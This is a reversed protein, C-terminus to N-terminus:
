KASAKKRRLPAFQWTNDEARCLRYNGSGKRGGAETVTRLTRCTTGYDEHTDLVTITGGADTDPNRWEVVGGDPTTDLAEDFTSRFLAQDDESMQAIPARSLFDLNQALVATGAWGSLSILLILMVKIPHM